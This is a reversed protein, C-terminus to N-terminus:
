TIAFRSAIRSASMTSIVSSWDNMSAISSEVLKKEREFELRAGTLQAQDRKLDAQAQHLAGEAPRPDITLLMDGANVEQGERFHVKTIQGTVQSRITIISYAEVNGINRLEVAVDQALAQAVVVPVAAPANQKQPDAGAAANGSCGCLTAVVLLLLAAAVHKEPLSPVKM